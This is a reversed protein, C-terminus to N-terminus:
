PLAFKYKRLVGRASQSGLFRVFARAQNPNKSGAVVAVPYRIPSHSNAPAFKVFRVRKSVAADTHYVLGADVNGLEVQTLVERVDKGQVAKRSVVAWLGLKRLTQEAYKGAPVSAPTGIAVRKVSTKRLDQFSQVLANGRPAILVLENRAFLRKTDALILKQSALESMNKDAASVFVDVPAGQEIQRQLVGSAAFNFRLQVTPHTKQYAQGIESLANKLSAAASVLLTTQATAPQAAILAVSLLVWWQKGHM